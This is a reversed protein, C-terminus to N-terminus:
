VARAAKLLRDRLAQSLAEGDPSPLPCVITEVQEGDLQRLGQYLTRALAPADSWDGWAFVKGAWDVQWGTPQMLGTTAPDADGLAEQMEEEGTVLLLRARPAYHRLGVGPSPLSEQPADATHEPQYVQVAQGTVKEIEAASVGGHRYITM